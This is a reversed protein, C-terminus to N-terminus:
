FEVVLSLMAGSLRTEPQTRLTTAAGIDLGEVVKWVLGPVTGRNAADAVRLPREITARLRGAEEILKPSSADQAPATRPIFLIAAGLAWGLLSRRTARSAPNM